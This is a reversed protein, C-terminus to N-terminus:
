IQALPSLSVNFLEKISYIVYYQLTQDLLMKIVRLQDSELKHLSAFSLWM